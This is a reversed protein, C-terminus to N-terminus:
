ISLTDATDQGAASRDKSGSIAATKDLHDIALRAKGLHRDSLSQSVQINQAYLGQDHEAAFARECNCLLKMLATKRYNAYWFRDVVIQRRGFQGEAKHSRDVNRGLGEISKM